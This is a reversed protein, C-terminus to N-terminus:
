LKLSIHSLELFKAHASNEKGWVM